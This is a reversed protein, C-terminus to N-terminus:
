DMIILLGNNSHEKTSRSADVVIIRKLIRAQVMDICVCREHLYLIKKLNDILM